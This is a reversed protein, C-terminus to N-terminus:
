KMRPPLIGAAVLETAIQKRISDRAPGNAAADDTEITGSWIMRGGDQTTWVSTQFRRVENTETYGPVRVDKWYSTYDRLFPGSVTVRERTTYGAIYTEQTANPLRVSIAVGDCDEKRVTDSIQMSDPVDSPFMTYSAVGTVGHAKLEEVFADEWIRRRVPDKRVAVAFVKKMTGENYSPDRWMETMQSQSCGDLLVSGSLLAFLVFMHVPKTSLRSRTMNMRM